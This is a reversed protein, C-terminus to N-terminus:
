MNIINAAMMKRTHRKKTETEALAEAVIESIDAVKTETSAALTKKCLPCATALTDPKGATLRAATDNSIKQKNQSSMKINGLSGGCCLSNEDEFKSHELRSIHQL